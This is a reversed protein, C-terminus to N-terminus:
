QLAAVRLVLERRERFGLREYLARASANDRMVHLFPREGRLMQRRTMLRTLRGALGRGQRDPHTCVASVERFGASAMREGAMAVLREGELVGYYEGLDLNREGFPGPRTLLALEVMRAAHERGLRVPQFAPDDEPMAADYVYQVAVTEVEIRWEAPPTGSWDAFYLPEGPECHARLGAFDPNACDAFGALAPFGPAYRRAAPGGCSFDRHPGVLSNWVINDLVREELPAAALPAAAM